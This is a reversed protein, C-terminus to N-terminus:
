TMCTYVKLFTAIGAKKVLNVSAGDAGFAALKEKWDKVGVEEFTTSIAGKLRLIPKNLCFM